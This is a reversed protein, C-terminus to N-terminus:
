VQAPEKIRNMLKLADPHTPKKKDRTKELIGKIGGFVQIISDFQKVYHDVDEYSSLEFIRYIEEPRWDVIVSGEVEKVLNLIIDKRREPRFRETPKGGASGSMKLKLTRERIFNIAREMSLNRAKIVAYLVKQLAFRREESGLHDTDRGGVTEKVGPIERFMELLEDLEEPEPPKVGGLAGGLTIGIQERRPLSEDLFKQLDPHLKTLNMRTYLQPVAVGFSKALSEVKWGLKQLNVMEFGKDLPTLEDQDANLLAMDLRHEKESPYVKVKVPVAGVEGLLAAKRRRHGSVDLFFCDKFEPDVEAWPAMSRPTLVMQQAVGHEKISENLEQQRLPNSERRPNKPDPAIMRPDIYFSALHTTWEPVPSLAITVTDGNPLTVVKSKSNAM